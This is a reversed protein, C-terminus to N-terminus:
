GNNSRKRVSFWATAVSFIVFLVIAKFWSFGGKSLGSNQLGDEELEVEPVPVVIEGDVGKIALSFGLMDGDSGLVGSYNGIGILGADVRITVNEIGILDSALLHVHETGELSDNSGIITGNPLIVSVDLDDSVAGFPRQNFSLIVDLDEGPVLTLDWSMNEGQKLFPGNAGSGNWKSGIVQELPRSGNAVLWENILSMRITENMM